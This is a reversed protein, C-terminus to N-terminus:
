AMRVHLEDSNIPNLVGCPMCDVVVKAALATVGHLKVLPAVISPDPDAKLATQRSRASPARDLESSAPLSTAVRGRISAFFPLAPPAPGVRNMHQLVAILRTTRSRRGRICLNHTPGRATRDIPAGPITMASLCAGNATAELPSTDTVSPM